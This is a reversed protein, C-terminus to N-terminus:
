FQCDALFEGLVNSAQSTSRRFKMLAPILAPRKLTELAIRRRSFHGDPLRFENFNLPMDEDARDSVVRVCYFPVSHFSASGAVAAAEMEVAMAGSKGLEAKEEVTGAVRDISVLPGTRFSGLNGPLAVPLGNVSTAVFIDAVTLTKDLAGCYGTSIYAEVGTEEVEEAATAATRALGPGPGNAALVVPRGKWKAARLFDIGGDVVRVDNLHRLFGRFEEAEAAVFVLAM